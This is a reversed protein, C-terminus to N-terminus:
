PMVFRLAAIVSREGTAASFEPETQWLAVRMGLSVHPTIWITSGINMYRNSTVLGDGIQYQVQQYQFGVGDACDYPCKFRRAWNFDVGGGLNIAQYRDPSRKTLDGTVLTDNRTYAGSAFPVLMSDFLKLRMTGRMNYGRIHDNSSKNMDTDVDFAQLAIKADVIPSDYLVAPTIVMIHFSDDPFKNAAQAISQYPQTYFREFPPYTGGIMLSSTTSVPNGANFTLGLRFGEFLQITGRIGNGLNYGDFLLPDRTATDQLFSEGVHASIYDASAEDIVRGVEVRWIKGSLRIIQQRVQMAAQGEYASTGHLSVGGSAMFESEASVLMGWHAKVGLRGLAFTSIRNQKDEEPRHKVIDYKAGGSLLIYPHAELTSEGPAEGPPAGSSGSLAEGGVGRAPESKPESPPLPQTPPSPPTPPPPEQDKAAPTPPPPPPPDSSQPAMETTAAAAKADKTDKVDRKPPKPAAVTKAKPPDAPADKLEQASTELVKANKKQPPAAEARVVVLCAALIAATGLLPKNM